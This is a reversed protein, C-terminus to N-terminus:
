YSLSIGEAIPLLSAVDREGGMVRVAYPGVVWSIKASMVYVGTGPQIVGEEDAIPHAEKKEIAYADIGNVPVMSVLPAIDPDGIGPDALLAAEDGVYTIDVFTGDGYEVLLYRPSTEPKSVWAAMVDTGDVTNLVSLSVGFASGAEDISDFRKAQGELSDYDLGPEDSGAYGPAFPVGTTGAVPNESTKGEQGSRANGLGVIGVAVLTTIVMVTLVLVPKMSAGHGPRSKGVNARVRATQAESPWVQASDRMRSELDRYLQENMESPM